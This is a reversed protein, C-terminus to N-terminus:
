RHLARIDGGCDHNMKETSELTNLVAALNPRLFREWAELTVGVMDRPPRLPDRAQRKERQIMADTDIYDFLKRLWWAVDGNPDTM